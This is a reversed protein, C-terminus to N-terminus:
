KEGTLAENDSLINLCAKFISIIVSKNDKTKNKAEELRKIEEMGICPAKKNMHKRYDGKQIFEKNCYECKYKCGKEGKEGKEGEKSM